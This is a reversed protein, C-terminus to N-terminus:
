RRWGRCRSTRATPPIRRPVAADRRHAALAPHRDGHGRHRGRRAVADARAVVPHQPADDDLGILVTSGTTTVGSMTEFFADTYTLDLDSFVLPLAGVAPVTLWALFTLVYAQRLTLGGITGRNALVFLGGIGISLMAAVSFPEPPPTGALWNVIAPVLMAVGLACILMGVVFLVPRLDIM